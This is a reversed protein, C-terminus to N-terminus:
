YDKTSKLLNHHVSSYLVIKDGSTVSDIFFTHAGNHNRKDLYDCILDWAEQLKQEETKPERVEKAAMKKILRKRM